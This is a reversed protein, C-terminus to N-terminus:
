IQALRHTPLISSRRYYSAPDRSTSNAVALRGGAVPSSLRAIGLVIADSEKRKMSSRRAM